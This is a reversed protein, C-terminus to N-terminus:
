RSSQRRSYIERIRGRRIWDLLAGCYKWRPRELWRKQNQPTRKQKQRRLSNLARKTTNNITNDMRLNWIIDKICWCIRASNIQYDSFTHKLILNEVKKIIQNLTFIHDAFLKLKRFDAQWSSVTEKEEM